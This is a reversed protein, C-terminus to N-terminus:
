TRYIIFANVLPAPNSHGTNAQPTAPNAPSPPTKSVPAPQAPCVPIASTASPNVPMDKHVLPDAKDLKKEQPTASASLVM